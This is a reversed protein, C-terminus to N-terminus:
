RPRSLISGRPFHLRPVLSYIINIKLYYHRDLLIAHVVTFGTRRPRRDPAHREECAEIDVGAM